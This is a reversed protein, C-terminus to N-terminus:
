VYYKTFVYEHNIVGLYYKADKIDEEIVYRQFALDYVYVGEGRSLVVPLPKYNFAGHKKELGIFYDANQTEITM